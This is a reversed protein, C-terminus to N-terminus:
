KTCTSRTSKWCKSFEQISISRSHHFKPESKTWPQNSSASQPESSIKSTTTAKKMSEEEWEPKSQNDGNQDRWVWSSLKCLRTSKKPLFERPQTQEKSNDSSNFWNFRTRKPKQSNSIPLLEALLEKVQWTKLESKWVASTPSKFVQKWWLKSLYIAQPLKM